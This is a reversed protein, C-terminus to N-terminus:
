GGSPDSHDGAGTSADAFRGRSRKGSLAKV